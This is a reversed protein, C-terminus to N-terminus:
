SMVEDAADRAALHAAYRAIEALILAQGSATGRGLPYPATSFSPRAHPLLNPVSM